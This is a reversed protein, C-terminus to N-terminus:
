YYLAGCTRLGLVIGRHARRERPAARRNRRPLALSRRQTGARTRRFCVRFIDAWRWWRRRGRARRRTRVRTRDLLADCSTWDREDEAMMPACSFATDKM